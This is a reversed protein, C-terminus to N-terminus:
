MIQHLAQFSPDMPSQVICNMQYDTFRQPIRRIRDSRRLHEPASENNTSEDMDDDNPVDGPGEIPLDVLGEATGVAPLEVEHVEAPVYIPVDAYVEVNSNQSTSSVEEEGRALETNSEECTHIESCSEPSHADGCRTVIVLHGTEEEELNEDTVDSEIRSTNKNDEVNEEVKEREVTDTVTITHDEHLEDCLEQHQVLFLHNRHLTRVKGSDNGKIRYVPIDDNMQELVTYLEEEFKDAIKDKGTFALIKVLVQDGMEVKAAKAKKDYMEKQKQQAKEMHNIAIEHTAKMRNRLDTIYEQTNATNDNKRLLDGFAADLPLRPKRGFMLEFPAVKTSEHPICNYAYVLFSVHKKWDLKQDNDLTGLMGLLTRNFRETIGNGMAHYPTTRSKKMNTLQCLEKILESEFNPGQDSHIYTPIGYNVILNNVIAEATTKATQNRTPVAIAYKTFHDTMVLINAIGGKSPELTFFDLCVRELPYTSTINVLPARNHINSRECNNIWKEAEAAM